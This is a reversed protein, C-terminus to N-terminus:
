GVPLWFSTKFLLINTGPANVSRFMDDAGVHTGITERASRSQQWVLYLTSGPRWEWKLVVNSNFNRVNFDANALTFASGGVTIRRSGDPQLVSQSGADKGYTIRERSRPALLEGHDYYRGSAAFPEAYTELTLNPTVVFNARLQTSWTSRDIYSFIYRSGFTEIRGGSLTTVYQQPETSRSYQPRVSLQLRPVPRISLNLNADVSRGELEDMGASAGMSVRTQSTNPNSFNASTRWGRPKGMLPGGRTLSFSSGRPIYTMGFSTQWFSLWTLNVNADVNGEQYENGFTWGQRSNVRVQYSRFYKGPRTERYTISPRPSIQDADNLQGLSNMELDPGDFRMQMDFLWHLGQVKSFTTVVGWGPWTERTPDYVDHTRDPRQHYQSSSRQLRDVAAAEGGVYSLAAAWGMEYKGGKLRLLGDTGAVAADRVLLQALPNAPDLDRHVGGVLFGFSSGSSGFEQQVRAVGWGARPAVRVDQILPSGITAVHAFSEDTLAGLVGISTGSPLRGTLKAAGLIRSTQPADVFDGSARGAPPAGIRRTYVLNIIRLNLLQSGESFFQRREPFRTPFATLNVEAPDAEVQGFDPNLTADLTLNPGVGLKMDLGVRSKLNRGDDFPNAANRNANMRSSGVVFPLMEVRRSPRIGEIGHLDGFRSAWARETRPVVIWYDEEELTPIFRRINLGWVQEDQDNFRLQTFPIWMEATWGEADVQTRAGWVPNFGEDRQNEQDQPHFHDLRAGSATVGFTYATRRDLFTDLSILIHEAVDDTQDRGGLPAQIASPDQSYMRAGVYLANGEYVFRVEMRDTPAAGETPEKQVFDRIPTARQWAQESLEGDLQISGDDVRAAMAQHAQVGQQAGLAPVSLLFAAWLCVGVRLM